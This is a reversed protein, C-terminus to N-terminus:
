FFFPDTRLPQGTREKVSPRFRCDASRCPVRDACPSPEKTSFAPFDTRDSREEVFFGSNENLFIGPMYAAPPIRVGTSKRGFQNRTLGTIVVEISSCFGTSPIKVNNSSFILYLKNKLAKRLSDVASARLTLNNKHSKNYVKFYTQLLIM